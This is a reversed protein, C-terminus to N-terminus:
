LTLIYAHCENEECADTIVSFAVQEPLRNLLDRAMTALEEPSSDVGTWMKVACFDGTMSLNRFVDEINSSDGAFEFLTGNEKGELADALNGEKLVVAYEEVHFLDMIDERCAPVAVPYVKFDYDLEVDSTSSFERAVITNGQRHILIPEYRLIAILLIAEGILYLLNANMFAANKTVLHGGVGCVYLVNSIFSLFMAVTAGVHLYLNMGHKRKLLICACIIATLMLIGMAILVIIGLNGTAFALVNNLPDSLPNKAVGVFRFQALSPLKGHIHWYQPYMHDVIFDIIEEHVIAVVTISLAAFACTYLSYAIKRFVKEQSRFCMLVGIVTGIISMSFVAEFNRTWGAFLSFVVMEFWLCCCGSFTHEKVAYATASFAITAAVVYMPYLSTHVEYMNMGIVAFILVLFSGVVLRVPNDQLIYSIRINRLLFLIGVTLTLPVVLKMLVSVISADMYLIQFATNCILMLSVAALAIWSVVAQKKFLHKM